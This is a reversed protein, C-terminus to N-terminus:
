ETELNVEMFVTREKIEEPFDAYPEVEYFGLSRYLEQAAYMFAATDIRARRYGIAKAEDLLAKALQRGLGKGRYAPRVYTRKLECVEDDLPKLVGCAVPLDGDYALLLRGSPPAYPGPLSALEKEIGQYRLDLGHTEELWDFYERFLAKAYTIETDTVAQKIEM